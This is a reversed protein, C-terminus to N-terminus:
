GMWRIYFTSRSMENGDNSRGIISSKKANSCPLLDALGKANKVAPDRLRVFIVLKFQGFLQGKEWQQCIYVSLTSKGCGPAGELLIVKGNEKALKRQRETEKFIEELQIPYKERLINDVKGTITMEIFSNEIDGKRVTASKIMALRFFKKTVAPPWQDSSRQKNELSAYLYDLYQKYVNDYYDSWLTEVIDGSLSLNATELATVFNIFKISSRKIPRELATILLTAKESRTSALSIQTKEKTSLVGKAALKGAITNPDVSSLASALVVDKNYASWLIKM